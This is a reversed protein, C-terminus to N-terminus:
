RIMTPGGKLMQEADALRRELDDLNRQQDEIIGLLHRLATRQVSSHVCGIKARAMKFAVDMARNM